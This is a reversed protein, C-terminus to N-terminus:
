LIIASDKRPSGTYIIAFSKPKLTVAKSYVEDRDRSHAVVKGNRVELSDDTEPDEILVWESDFSEKIIDLAM